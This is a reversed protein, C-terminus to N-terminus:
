TWTRWHVAVYPLTRRLLLSVSCDILWDIKIRWISYAVLRQQRRVAVPPLVVCSLMCKQRRRRVAVCHAHVNVHFDVHEIVLDFTRHREGDGIQGSTCKSLVDAAPWGDPRGSDASRPSRVGGAESRKYALTRVTELVFVRSLSLLKETAPGLIQFLRGAESRCGSM